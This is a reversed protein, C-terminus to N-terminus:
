VSIQMVNGDPDTFTFFIRSAAMRREVQIGAGSLSKYAEIIAFPDQRRFAETFDAILRRIHAPSASSSRENEDERALRALKERARRLATKVAGDNTDGLMDVTERTTFQFVDVLLVIAASKPQLCHVLKEVAEGIDLPFQESDTM